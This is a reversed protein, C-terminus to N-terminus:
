DNLTIKQYLRDYLKMFGICSLFYISSIVILSLISQHVRYIKFVYRQRAKLNFKWNKSDRSYSERVRYSMLIKPVYGFSVKNSILRLWLELDESREFKEDYYGYEEFLSRKLLISPHCIGNQFLFNDKVSNNSYNRTGIKNSNKDILKVDCGVADFQYKKLFSIQKELKDKKWIDDSDMRAIFRGKAKEISTNLSRTLGLRKDSEIIVHSHQQILEKILKKNKEDPELCTIFEIERYTQGLISQISMKLNEVSENYTAFVISVM